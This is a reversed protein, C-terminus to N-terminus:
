MLGIWFYNLRTTSEELPYDVALKQMIVENHYETPIIALDWGSKEDTNMAQCSARCVEYTAADGGNCYEYELESLSVLSQHRRLLTDEQFKHVKSNLDFGM